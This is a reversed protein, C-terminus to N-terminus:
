TAEPIETATQTAATAIAADVGSQQLQAQRARLVRQRVERIFAEAKQAQTWEAPLNPCVAQLIADRQAATATGNVIADCISVARQIYTAM